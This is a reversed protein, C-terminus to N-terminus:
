CHMIDYYTKSKWVNNTDTTGSEGIIYYCKNYATGGNDSILFKNGTEYEPYESIGFIASVNKNQSNLRVEKVNSKKIYTPTTKLRYDVDNFYKTSMDKAIPFMAMYSTTFGLNMEWKVRQSIELQHENALSFDHLSYHEAVKYTLYPPAPDYMNSQQVFSFSDVYRMDSFVIKDWEVGNAFFTVFYQKEDGHMYGGIFDDKGNLMIAMEWEGTTTVQKEDTFDLSAIYCYAIRWIDSRDDNNVTHVVVYHIYKGNKPVYVDFKETSSDAGDGNTYKVAIKYHRLYNTIYTELEDSYIAKIWDKWDPYGSRIYMKRSVPEIAIQYKKYISTKANLIFGTNFGEPANLIGENAGWVFIGIEELNDLDTNEPLDKVIYKNDVLDEKLSGIQERVAAGATEHTKGDVDVRIDQLEADGTTSGDPLKTMQDIRAREVAVEKSLKSDTETMTQKISSIAGKLTGDGIGSIDTKGIVKSIIYKVGEIDLFKKM